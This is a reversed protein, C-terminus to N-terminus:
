RACCRDPDITRWNAPASRGACREHVQRKYVDEVPDNGNRLKDWAINTDSISVSLWFSTGEEITSVSTSYANVIPKSITTSEEAAAAPLLAMISMIVLMLSLTIQIRKKM